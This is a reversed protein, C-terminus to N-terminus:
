RRKRMHAETAHLRAWDDATNRWKMMRLAKLMNRNCLTNSPPRSDMRDMYSELAAAYNPDRDLGFERIEQIAKNSLKPM